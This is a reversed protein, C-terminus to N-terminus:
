KAKPLLNGEPVAKLLTEWIGFIPFSNGYCVSASPLSRLSKHFRSYFSTTYFHVVCFTSFHPDCHTCGSGPREGVGRQTSLLCPHLGCNKRCHKVCHLKLHLICYWFYLCIIYIFILIIMILKMLLEQTMDPVSNSLNEATDRWDSPIEEINDICSLVM